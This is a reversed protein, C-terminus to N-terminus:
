LASSRTAVSYKADIQRLAEGISLLGCFSDRRQTTPRLTEEEQCGVILVPVDLGARRVTWAAAQEDGFNVASIVIGQVNSRRFLEACLEAEQRNEVCGVKTEEPSPVVVDVGLRTMAEITEQRMKAALEASFFGRNAPLFGITVKDHPFSM